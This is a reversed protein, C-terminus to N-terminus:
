KHYASFAENKRALNFNRNNCSWVPLYPIYVTPRVNHTMVNKMKNRWLAAGTCATSSHVNKEARRYALSTNATTAHEDTQRDTRGDTVLRHQM